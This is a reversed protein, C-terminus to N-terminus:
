RIWKKDPSTCDYVKLDLKEAIKMAEDLAREKDFSSLKIVRKQGEVALILKYQYDSSDAEGADGESVSIYRVVSVYKIEPLHRWGGLTYGLIKSYNRYRKNTTDIEIGASYTLVAVGIAVALLGTEIYFFSLIAAAIFYSIFFANLRNATFTSKYM